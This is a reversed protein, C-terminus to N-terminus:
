YFYVVMVTAILWKNLNGGVFSANKVSVACSLTVFFRMRLKLRGRQAGGGQKLGEAKQEEGQGWGPRVGGGDPDWGVL